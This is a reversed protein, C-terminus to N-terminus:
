QLVNCWLLLVIHVNSLVVPNQFTIFLEQGNQSRFPAWDVCVPERTAAFAGSNLARGLGNVRLQGSQGIRVDIINVPLEIVPNALLNADPAVASQFATYWIAVPQLAVADFDTVTVQFTGGTALPVADNTGAPPVVAPDADPFTTTGILDCDCLFEPPCPGAVPTGIPVSAGPGPGCFGPGGGPPATGTPAATSPQGMGRRRWDGQQQPRLPHREGSGAPGGAGVGRRYAGIMLEAAHDTEKNLRRSAEIANLYSDLNQSM